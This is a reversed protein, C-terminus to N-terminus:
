SSIRTWVTTAIPKTADIAAYIDEDTIDGTSLQGYASRSPTSYAGTQIGYGAVFPLGEGAPRFVTVFAQYPHVLSGYAGAASYGGIAASGAPMNALLVDAARSVAEADTHIYSTPTLGLELQIGWVYLGSVGDGVFSGAGAENALKIRAFYDDSLSWTTAVWVRFWGDSLSVFGCTSGESVSIEQTRPNFTVVGGAFELRLLRNASPSDKVFVSWTYKNLTEDEGGFLVIALPNIVAELSSTTEIVGSVYHEGADTTETILAATQTLDPSQATYNAVQVGTGPTLNESNTALNESDREILLSSGEYRATNEPVRVIRGNDIMTTIGPQRVSVAAGYSGVDAPRGPEIIIPARGTLELLIKEMAPRTTRERFINILIRNRFSADSQSVYRILGSGFFDLSILDLWGDTATKIRTQSKAYIYLTYAWAQATACGWLAADLVPNNDGFWGVPLLRKLRSFIDATDGTSM